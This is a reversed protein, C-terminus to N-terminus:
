QLLNFEKIAQNSLVDIMDLYRGENMIYRSYNDIVLKMKPIILEFIDKYYKFVYNNLNTIFSSDKTITIITNSTLINIINEFMDDVTKISREADLDDVYIKTKLKLLLNPMEDYIYSQLKPKTQSVTGYEPNLINTVINTIITSYNKDIKYKDNNQLIKQMENPSISLVYKTLIKVISYYLSSCLVSKIIHKIIDLVETLMYNEEMNYNQPLDFMNSITPSFVEKYLTNLLKIDEHAQIIDTKTNANLLSSIIKKQVIAILPHINFVSMMQSNNEITTKWINNYLFYDEYGYYMKNDDVIKASLENYIESIKKYIYEYTEPVTEKSIKDAIGLFQKTKILTDLEKNINDAIIKSQGSTTPPPTNSGDVITKINTNDKDYNTKMINLRKITENINNIKEQINLKIHPLTQKDWEAKLYTLIQTLHIIENDIKNITKKLKDTKKNLSDLKISKKSQDITINKNIIPVNHDIASIVNYKNILINDLSKQNEYSWKGIYSKMYYYLLNNYMIILQPFIIDMYRIVNNKYDPNAMINDKIQRYIPQTFKNIIDKISSSNEILSGNHTNYLTLAYKYPTMNSFNTVNKINVNLRGDILTEILPKYLTDLAYFIATSGNIDKKNVDRMRECLLKIVNTDIKFCQQEIIESSLKYNINYIRHQKKKIDDNQIDNEDEMVNITHLLMNYDQKKTQDYVISIIDDYLDNLKTDFGTDAKFIGSFIKTYDTPIKTSDLLIKVYNNIGSYLANKIHLTILEDTIKAVTTLMILNLQENTPYISNFSSKLNSKIADIINTTTIPTSPPATPNNVNPLSDVYLKGSGDKIQPNNFVEILRQVIFMKINYIYEDILTGIPLIAPSEKDSSTPAKIMAFHGIMQITNNNIGPELINATSKNDIVKKNNQKSLGQGGYKLQLKVNINSVLQNYKHFTHIQEDIIQNPEDILLGAKPLPIQTTEISVNPSNPDQTQVITTVNSSGFINEQLYLTNPPPTGPPPTSTMINLNSPLMYTSYNKIDVTPAYSEYFLKRALDLDGDFLKKYDDRSKPLLTFQRLPRDFINNYEGIKDSTFTSTLFTKQYIMASNINIFDITSNMTEILKIYTEYLSNFKNAIDEINNTIETCYDICYELLYAYPHTNNIDNKFNTYFKNKLHTTNVNIYAKENIAMSMNQCINYISLLINSMIKHYINYHFGSSLHKSLLKINYDIVNQHKVIQKIHFYFKSIYLYHVNPLRGFNQTFQNMPYPAGLPTIDNQGIPGKTPDHVRIKNGIKPNQVIGRVSDDSIEVPVLKIKNKKWLERNQKTGRIIQVVPYQTFDQLIENIIEDTNGAHIDPIKGFINLEAFDFPQNNEHMIHDIIDINSVDFQGDAAYQPRGNINRNLRANQNLQVINYILLHMNKAKGYIIELIESNTNNFTTYNTKLNKIKDKIIQDTYLLTMEPTKKPLIKTNEDIGWGDTNHPGISIPKTSESLKSTVFNTLSSTLEIIRSKILERKEVDNKKNDSYIDTINKIFKNEEEEFNFPFIEGIQTFTNKIHTLYRKFNTTSLIDILFVTLDKMEKQTVDKIEKKPILAGVKKPKECVEISGQAAYHLPTMNSSDVADPDAGYELLLKVISAYQYKAALHLPTVNNADFVNTPTGRDILFKILEHKENEKMDLSTNELVIHLLSEGNSNRISLPINKQSIENKIKNVDGEAMLMFMQDIYEPKIDKTPIFGKIINTQPIFPRQPQPVFPRKQTPIPKLM